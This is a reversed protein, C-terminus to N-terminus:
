EPKCEMVHHTYPIRLLDHHLTQSIRPFSAKALAAYADATRVNLGRDLRIILRAIPHQGPVLCPDIVMCRGGPKVAGAAVAFFRAAQKDDLHHLVGLGMVLDFNALGADDLMEVPICHFTGRNGYKKIAANIYVPSLDVGVYLIDQPLAELIGAPGCGMDLIRMGPAPRIYTGVVYRLTDPGGLLKMCMEYIAPLSLWARWGSTEQAM